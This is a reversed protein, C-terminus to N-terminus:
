KLGLQRLWREVAERDKNSNNSVQVNKIRVDSAGAAEASEKVINIIDDVVSRRTQPRDTGATPEGTLMRYVKAYYDDAGQKSKIQGKDIMAITAAAAAVKFSFTNVDVAANILDILGNRANELEKRVRDAEKVEQEKKNLADSFAAAIREFSDGLSLREEIYDAINM